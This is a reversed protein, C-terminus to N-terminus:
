IRDEVHVFLKLCVTVELKLEGLGFKMLRLFCFVLVFVFPRFDVVLLWIEFDVIVLLM